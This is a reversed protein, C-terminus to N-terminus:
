VLTKKETVDVLNNHFTTRDLGWKTQCLRQAANVALKKTDGRVNLHVIRGEVMVRVLFPLKPIKKSKEPTPSTM